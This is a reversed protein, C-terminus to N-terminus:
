RTLLGKVQQEVATRVKEEGIFNKLMSPLEVEVTVNQDDVAATGSIPVSIFGLKGTFAFTMTSDNWSKSANAIELGAFSKGFVETITQDVIRIAEQKTKRHPVVVKV